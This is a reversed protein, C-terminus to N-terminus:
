LQPINKLSFSVEFNPNLKNLSEKGINQIRSNKTSDYHTHEIELALSCPCCLGDDM